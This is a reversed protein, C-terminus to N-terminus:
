VCTVEKSKVLSRFAAIVERPREEHPLLKAREISRFGACNTFQSATQTGELYPFTPDQRGWIFSVPCAINRHRRAFDDIIRWDFGALYRGYGEVRRHEDVLPAVFLSRFEGDILRPDYFCGAFGASSHLFARFRLLFWLGLTSGPVSLLRQYFPIWPPRHDPLETNILALHTVQDPALLALYRAIAGGSDQAMVLYRDLGLYNMLAQLRSAQTAMSFDTYEDWLSEGSGPLDVIVCTFERSLEPVIKRFTLGHLPFGHVLLLPPGQGVVRFATKAHAHGHFRLPQRLLFETDPNM